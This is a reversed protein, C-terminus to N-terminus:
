DQNEHHRRNLLAHAIANQHFRISRRHKEIRQDCKLLIDNLGAYVPTYLMRLRNKKLRHISEEKTKILAQHHGIDDRFKTITNQPTTKQM